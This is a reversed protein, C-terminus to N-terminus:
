LLRHFFFFETFTIQDFFTTNSDDLPRTNRPDDEYAAIKELICEGARQLTDASREPFPNHTHVYLRYAHKANELIDTWAADDKYYQMQTPVPESEQSNRTARKKKIVADDEDEAENDADDNDDREHQHRMKVEHRQKSKSTSTPEDDQAKALAEANPACIKRNTKHHADLVSYPAEEGAYCVM